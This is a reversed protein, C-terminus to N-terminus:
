GQGPEFGVVEGGRRGLHFTGVLGSCAPHVFHVNVGAVLRALTTGDLRDGFLAQHQLRTHSPASSPPFATVRRVPSAIQRSGHAPLERPCLAFADSCLVDSRAKASPWRPRGSEWARSTM